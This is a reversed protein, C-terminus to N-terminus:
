SLLLSSITAINNNIITRIIASGSSAVKVRRISIIKILCYFVTSLHLTAPRCWPVVIGGVIMGILLAICTQQMSCADPVMMFVMTITNKNLIGMFSFFECKM